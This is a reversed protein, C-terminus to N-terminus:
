LTHIALGASFGILLGVVVETAKHRLLLLRSWALVPLVALLLWGIPSGLLLLTTAALSAFAMHLSVKLWRTSVACAALMALAGAAGRVVFSQPQFFHFYGFLFLLAFASITFLIPRESANSADVNAWAGRRVQRIMLVAVPAVTLLIVIGLIRVAQAPPGFRLSAATVMIAVMAFPHALISVWRAVETM